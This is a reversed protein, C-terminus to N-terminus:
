WKLLPRSSIEGGQSGDESVIWSGQGSVRCMHVELASHVFLGKQEGALASHVSLVNREGAQLV